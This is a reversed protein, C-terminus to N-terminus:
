FYIYICDNSFFVQHIFEYTSEIIESRFLFLSLFVPYATSVQYWLDSFGNRFSHTNQTLAHLLLLTELINCRAIRLDVFGVIESYYQIFM